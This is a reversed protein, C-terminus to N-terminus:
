YKNINKNRQKNKRTKNGGRQKNKRTIKHWLRKPATIAEKLQRYNMMRGNTTFGKKTEDYVMNEINNSLRDRVEAPLHPNSYGHDVYNDYVFEYLIEILDTKQSEYKKDDNLLDEILIGFVEEKYKEEIKRLYIQFDEIKKKERTTEPKHIKTSFWKYQRTLKDYINHGYDSIEFFIDDNHTVTFDYKNDFWTVNDKWKTKDKTQAHILIQKRFEKNEALYKNIKEIEANIKENIKQKKLNAHETILIKIADYAHLQNTNKYQSSPKAKNKLISFPGFNYGYHRSNRKRHNKSYTTDNYVTMFEHNKLEELFSTNKAELFFNEINGDHTFEEKGIKMEISPKDTNANRRLTIIIDNNYLPPDVDMPVNNESM